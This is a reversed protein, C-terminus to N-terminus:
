LTVQIFKFTTLEKRFEELTLKNIGYNYLTQVEKKLSPREEGKVLLHCKLFCYGRGKTVKHKKVSEIMNLIATEIKGEEIIYQIRPSLIYVLKNKVEKEIKTVDIFAFDNGESKFVYAPKKFVGSRALTFAVCDLLPEVDEDTFKMKKIKIPIVELEYSPLGKPSFTYVNEKAYKIFNRKAVELVESSIVTFPITHNLFFKLNTVERGFAQELEQPEM